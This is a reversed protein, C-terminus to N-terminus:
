HGGGAAPVFSHVAPVFTNFMGPTDGAPVEGGGNAIVLGLSEKSSPSARM